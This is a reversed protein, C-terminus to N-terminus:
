EGFREAAIKIATLAAILDDIEAPMLEISAEFPEGDRAHPYVSISIEAISSRERDAIDGITLRADASDWDPEFSAPKRWAGPGPPIVEVDVKGVVRETWSSM